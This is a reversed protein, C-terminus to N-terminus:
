LILSKRTCEDINPAPVTGTLDKSQSIFTRYNSLSFKFFCPLLMRINTLRLLNEKKALSTSSSRTTAAMRFSLSTVLANHSLGLIGYRFQLEDSKVELADLRARLRAYTSGHGSPDYNITIGITTM